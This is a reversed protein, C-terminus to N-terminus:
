RAAEAEDAELDKQHCDAAGSQSAGPERCPSLIHPMLWYSSAKVAVGESNSPADCVEVAALCRGRQVPPFVLRSFAFDGIKLNLALLPAWREILKSRAGEGPVRGSRGRGRRGVCRRDQDEPIDSRPCLTHCQIDSDWRLQSAHEDGCTETCVLSMSGMKPLHCPHLCTIGLPLFRQPHWWVGGGWGLCPGQGGRSHPSLGRLPLPPCTCLGQLGSPTPVAERIGPTAPHTEAPCGCGPAQHPRQPLHPYFLPM